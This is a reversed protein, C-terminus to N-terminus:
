FEIIAKLGKMEMRAEFAKVTDKIPFRHTVLRRALPLVTLLELSRRYHEVTANQTGTVFLENYHILNPDLKLESEPPSGGFINVWGQKRALPLGAEIAGVNGVSVIVADAGLGDTVDMTAQRLDEQQPNVCRTAGLELAVALREEVTDSVIIRSAGLARAILLHTLGMPGAGIIAVSSGAGVQCVELSYLACAFPETQCALDLALGAPMKLLHGIRVLSAPMLAYEALGGNLDYGLTIRQSCRNQKGQRCFFCRGCAVIPCVVVEDGLSVSDVGEGVEVVTGALEHGQVVGPLAYTEGRYVRIDSFCLSATSTRLLVEGPGATPVPLEEVTLNGPSHFVCAQMTTM